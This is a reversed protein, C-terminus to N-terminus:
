GFEVILIGQTLITCVEWRRLRHTMQGTAMCLNGIHHRLCSSTSRKMVSGHNASTYASPKLQVNYIAGSVFKVIASNITLDLVDLDLLVQDLKFLHGLM